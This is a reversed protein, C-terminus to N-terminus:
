FRFNATLLIERMQGVAIVQGYTPSNVITDITTYQPRNFVNSASARFELVRGERLSFVKTLAM